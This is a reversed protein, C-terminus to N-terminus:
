NHIKQAAGEYMFIKLIVSLGILHYLIDWYATGLFASGVLYAFVSLQLARAYDKVWALSEFRQSILIKKQLGLVTGLTLGLWLFFGVYGHEGLIEFYASHADHNEGKFTEFGGGTLPDEIARKMAYNWAEFRGQVSADEDYTEITQMRSTWEEPLVSLALFYAIIVLPISIFLWKKNAVFMMAGLTVILTVLGGRSHTSIIAFISFIFIVLFFRKFYLKNVLKRCLLSLPLIINLALAIENNGEYFTFSPGWVRYNFGSRLAFLGGKIGILGFSIAITIITWKLQERTRILFFTPFISVYIKMVKLWQTEAAWPYDPIVIYTTVTFWTLLLLFMGTEWTWPFPRRSGPNIVMGLVTSIFVLQFVPLTTSFGWAYRHPNMYTLIALSLVGTWPIRLSYYIAAVLFVVVLIDRM